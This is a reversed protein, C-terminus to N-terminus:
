KNQKEAPLLFFLFHKSQKIHTRFVSCSTVWKYVGAIVKIGASVFYHLTSIYAWEFVFVWKSLMNHKDDSSDPSSSSAQVSAESKVEWATQCMPSSSLSIKTVTLNSKKKKKGEKSSKSM